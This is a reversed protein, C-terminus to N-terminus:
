LVSLVRLFSIGLIRLLILMFKYNIMQKNGKLNQNVTPLITSNM